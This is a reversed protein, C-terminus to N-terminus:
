KAEQQVMEEQPEQPAIHCDWCYPYVSAFEHCVDCFKKKSTHCLMCGKQLSREYMKGEVKIQERNGERIVEDRWDNLLKMHTKNIEALPLVCEKHDKPKEPKPAELKKGANNFVAFLMLAVFIILGPIIKGKNYM